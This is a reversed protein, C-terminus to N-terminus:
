KKIKKLLDISFFVLKNFFHPYNPGYHKQYFIKMAQYFHSHIMSKTKKIKSKFGSRYKLHVVEWLPYYIIKYNLKKIQFSLELDEGYAFYDEDFGGIRKILDTRTFFFAGSIAEIQHVENIPLFILHYGGFIIKLLPINKFLRELGALYCFSRWLTPIGRHSAPDIGGNTLKVKVTLAGIDDRFDMVKILDWFDLDEIIVDSNLFLLYRGTAKKLALNNAKTYGINKNLKILFLHPWNKKLEKLMLWSGDTSGNDVVIVQYSLPYKILNNRLSHLCKETIKRTNFSVIIISLDM